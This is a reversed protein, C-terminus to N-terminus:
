NFPASSHCSLPPVKAEATGVAEFVIWEACDIGLRKWLQEKVVRVCLAVVAASRIRLM